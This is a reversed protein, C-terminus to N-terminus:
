TGAAPPVELSIEPKHGRKMLWGAVLVGITGAAEVSYILMTSPAFRQEVFADTMIM